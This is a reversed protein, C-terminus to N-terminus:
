QHAMPLARCIPVHARAGPVVHRLRRAARAPNAGDRRQQQYARLPLPQRHLARRYTGHRLAAGGARTSFREIGLDASGRRQQWVEDGGPLDRQARRTVGGARRAAAPRCQQSACGRRELGAGRGPQRLALHLAGPLAARRGPHQTTALLALSPGMKGGAGLLLLDGGLQQAAAVTAENPASLIEDLEREDRPANNM